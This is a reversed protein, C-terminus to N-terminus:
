SCNPHFLCENQDLRIVRNGFSSGCRYESYQKRKKMYTEVPHCVRATATYQCNEGILWAHVEVSAVKQVVGDNAFVTVNVRFMRSERHFCLIIRVSNIVNTQRYM